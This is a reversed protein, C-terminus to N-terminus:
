STAHAVCCLRRRCRQYSVSSVTTKARKSGSVLLSFFASIDWFSSAWGRDSENMGPFSWKGRGDTKLSPVSADNTPGCEQSRSSRNPPQPPQSRRWGLWHDASSSNPPQPRHHLLQGDDIVCCLPAHLIDLVVCVCRPVPLPPATDDSHHAGMM